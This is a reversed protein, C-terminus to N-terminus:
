SIQHNNLQSIISNHWEVDEVLIKELDDISM